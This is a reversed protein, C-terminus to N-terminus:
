SVESLLEVVHQLEAEKKDSVYIVDSSLEASFVSFKIAEEVSVASILLVKEGEFLPYVANLNGSVVIIQNVSKRVVEKGRAILEALCNEDVIIACQEKQSCKGIAQDITSSYFQQGPINVLENM